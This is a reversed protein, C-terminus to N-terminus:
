IFYLVRGRVTQLTKFSSHSIYKFRWHIGIETEGKTIIRDYTEKRSADTENGNGRKKETKDTNTDNENWTM